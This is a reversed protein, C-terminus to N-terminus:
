PVSLWGRSMAVAKEWRGVMYDRKEQDIQPKFVTRGETNVDELETLSKWMGVALGAAM